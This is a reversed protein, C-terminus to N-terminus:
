LVERPVDCAIPIHADIVDDFHSLMKSFIGSMGVPIGFVVNCAIVVYAYVVNDWRDPLVLGVMPWSTDPEPRDAGAWAPAAALSGALLCTLVARAVLNSM